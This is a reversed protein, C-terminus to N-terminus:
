LDGEISRACSVASRHWRGSKRDIYLPDVSEPRNPELPAVVLAVEHVLRLAIRETARGALIRDAPERADLLAHRDM